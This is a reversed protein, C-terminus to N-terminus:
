TYIPVQISSQKYKGWIIKDQVIDLGHTIFGFARREAIIFKRCQREAVSCHYVMSPYCPIRDVAQLRDTNSGFVEVFWAVM